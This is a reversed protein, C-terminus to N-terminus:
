SSPMIGLRSLSTLCDSLAGAKTVACGSFSSLCQTLSQHHIGCSPFESHKLFTIIHGFISTFTVWNHGVRQPGISQITRPIRWALIRSHAAKGKELPDEWGLIQVWTERMAPLNKVLQAVLSAWVHLALNSFAKRLLHCILLLRARHLLLSNWLSSVATHFSQLLHSYYGQLVSFHKAQSSCVFLCITHILSFSLFSLEDLAKPMM